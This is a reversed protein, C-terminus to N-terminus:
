STFDAMAGPTPIGWLTLPQGTTLEDHWQWIWEGLTDGSDLAAVLSRAAQDAVAPDTARLVALLYASIYGNVSTNIWSAYAEPNTDFLKREPDHLMKSQEMWTELSERLFTEAPASVRAAQKDESEGSLHTAGYDVDSTQWAKIAAVLAALTDANDPSKFYNPDTFSWDFQALQEALSQLRGSSEHYIGIALGTHRHTLAQGGTLVPPWTKGLSLGPTIVLDVCSTPVASVVVGVPGDDGKLLVEQLPLTITM